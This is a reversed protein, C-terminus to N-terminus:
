LGSHQIPHRGFGQRMCQGCRACAVGALSGTIRSLPADLPLTAQAGVEASGVVGAATELLDPRGISGVFVFDGTFIGMPVNAGGGVDTLVFSISEPTHGPTHLVELKVKGVYFEDGDKLLASDYRNAFEYKWDSRDQM